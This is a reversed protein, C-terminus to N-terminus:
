GEFDYMRLSGPDLAGLAKGIEATFKREAHVARQFLGRAKPPRQTGGQPIGLLKEPMAPFGPLVM